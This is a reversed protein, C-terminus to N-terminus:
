AKVLSQYLALYERAPQDWSFDQRMCRKQLLERTEPSEYAALASSVADRLNQASYQTFTFGYGEPHASDFPVVTDRLGGTARVVPIVGFRMAQMQATGCPEEQSPMLLFDASSYLEAAREDSYTMVAVKEPYQERLSRLLDAIEGEGDGAFLLQCGRKLFEPLVEALLGLGKRPLLRGVFGFMPADERVELGCCKQMWLKNRVKKEVSDVDYPAYVAPDEAPGGWDPIGNRIGHVQHAAIVEALPGAADPATIERAYGPSVTTLLDATEIAGKMLNVDGELEMTGQAFLIGSLGFVDTLTQYSFDGQFEVNHITFVTRIPTKGPHSLLHDRLYIPVLATQWDNCHIIDPRWDLHRLSECVAKSFFAYRKDDGIERNRSAGFVRDNEVFYWTVGDHELRYLGCTVTELALEMTFITELEMEARWHEPITDLLPLIGRIEVGLKKMAAPFEGAVEGLGGSKAFPYAESVAYLVKM